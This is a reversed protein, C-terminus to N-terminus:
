VHVCGRDAEFLQGVGLEDLQQRDRGAHHTQAHFRIGRARHQFHVRSQRERNEFHKQAAGTFPLGLELPAQGFYLLQDDLAIRGGLFNSPDLYGLVLCADTLTPRTSGRGYCAPGPDAGASEPGVHLLGGDDVWAISGGGAGISKVDISPFGTIHGAFEPGIWSEFM